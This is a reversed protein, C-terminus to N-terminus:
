ELEGSESVSKGEMGRKQDRKSQSFRRGTNPNAIFSLTMDRQAGNNTTPRVGPVCPKIMLIKPTAFHLPAVPSQIPVVSAANQVTARLITHAPVTAVTIAFLTM